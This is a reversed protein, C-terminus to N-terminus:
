PVESSTMFSILRTEMLIGKRRRSAPRLLHRDKPPTSIKDGNMADALLFLRSGLAFDDILWEQRLLAEETKDM